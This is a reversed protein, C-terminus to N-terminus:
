NKNSYIKQILDSKTIIGVPKGADNVVIIQYTKLLESLVKSSTSMSVSPPPEEMIDKVKLFKKGKFLNELIITESILGMIKQDEIVPLQSINHKKMKITVEKVSDNLKACIMGKKIFDKANSEKKYRMRNLASFIKHANTYTPDLAGSEVKAIMSQSVGSQMALEKQTMEVKKRIIKIQKIDDIM